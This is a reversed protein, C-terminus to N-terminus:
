RASRQSELIDNSFSIGPVPAGFGLLDAVTKGVDSMSTRTGLAVGSKLSKGYVLLPVYERTHDTGPLTPDCGHDAVIMLVDDNTLAALLRGLKKDAEVLGKSYGAVDNRHGWLTDFDGLITFVIGRGGREALRTTEALAAGNDKTKVSKTIGRGSFVDSVKGIGIVDVGATAAYDLTMKADPALGFDKRRETRVFSGAQGIFPRAIVRDVGLAGTLIGRAALCMEYLREVPVVSEHAAIQWVSDGSTYVIPRGTRMHEAGLEDIIDTGSAAKNGLVGGCRTAAVFRDVVDPPFGQPFVPFPTATVVGMMEWLGVTTDKGHSIETLRGYGGLPKDAPPVGEIDIINGIGLSQLTPLALGGAAEAVHGLTNAGADGYAAADPLAGVGLSDFVLIFIRKIATGKNM